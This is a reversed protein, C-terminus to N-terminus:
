KVREHEIEGVKVLKGKITDYMEFVFHDDDIPRIIYQIDKDRVGMVPEDIKGKFVITKNEANFTGSATSFATGMNDIWFYIYEKRFNDYGLMGEGDFPMGGMNGAYTMQLFRGGIIMQRESTGESTQPTGSEDMWFKNHTKWKGVTKALMAHEPGPSAYKMWLAMMSDQAAKQEKTMTPKAKKEEAHSSICIGSLVFVVM